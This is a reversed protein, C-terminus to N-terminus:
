HREKDDQPPATGRVRTEGPQKNRGATVQASGAEKSPAWHMGHQTTM